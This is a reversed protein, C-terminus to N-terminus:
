FNAIKLPPMNNDVAIVLADEDGVVTFVPSGKSYDPRVWASITLNQMTPATYNEDAYQDGQLYSLGQGSNGDPSGLRADLISPPLPTSISKAVVSDGFAIQDRIVPSNGGGTRTLNSFQGFDLNRELHLTSNSSAGFFLTSNGFGGFAFSSNGDTM